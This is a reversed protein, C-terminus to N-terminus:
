QPYGMSWGRFTQYMTESAGDWGYKAQPAGYAYAVFAECGYPGFQDSGLVSEAKAIAADAGPITSPPEAPASPAFLLAAAFPTASLYLCIRANLELQSRNEVHMNAEHIAAHKSRSTRDPAPPRGFEAEPCNL